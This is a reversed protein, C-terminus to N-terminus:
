SSSCLYDSCFRIVASKVNTPHCVEAAVNLAITTSALRVVRGQRWQYSGQGEGTRVMVHKQLLKEASDRLYDPYHDSVM